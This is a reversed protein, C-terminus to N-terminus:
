ELDIGDDSVVQSNEVEEPGVLAALEQRRRLRETRWNSALWGIGGGLLAAILLATGLRMRREELADFLYNIRVNIIVSNQVVLFSLLSLLLAIGVIRATNGSNAEATGWIERIWRWIRRMATKGGLTDNGSNAALRKRLM